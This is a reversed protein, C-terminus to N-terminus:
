SRRCWGRPPRSGPVARTIAVFDPNGFTMGFDAFGDTAQKWRIMGGALFPDQAVLLRQELDNVHARAPKELPRRAVPRPGWLSCRSCAPGRRHISSAHRISIGLERSIRKSGWGLENLRLIASVAEPELMIERRPNRRSPPSSKRPSSRSKPGTRSPCSSAGAPSGATRPATPGIPVDIM